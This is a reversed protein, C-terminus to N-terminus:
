AREAQELLTPPLISDAGGTVEIGALRGYYDFELVIGNLAPVQQAEDLEDLAVSDRNAAGSSPALSLYARGSDELTLRLDAM